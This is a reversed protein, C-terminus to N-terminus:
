TENKYLTIFTTLREECISSMGKGPSKVVYVVYFGSGTLIGPSWSLFLITIVYYTNMNCDVSYKLVLWEILLKSTAAYM